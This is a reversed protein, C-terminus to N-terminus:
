KKQNKEWKYYNDYLGLARKLKKDTVDGRNKLAQTMKVLQANVYKQNSLKKQFADPDKKNKISETFVLLLFSNKKSKPAQYILERTQQFMEDMQKKNYRIYVIGAIVIALVAVVIIIITNTEM